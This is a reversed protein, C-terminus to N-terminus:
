AKFVKKVQKWYLHIHILTTIAMLIAFEAHWFSITLNWSTQIGSNIMIVMVLGTVGTVMFSMNLANSWIKYFIRRRLRGELYFLYTILYIIITTITLPILYYNIRPVSKSAQIDSSSNNGNKGSERGPKKESSTSSNDSSSVSSSQSHDCIDDQNTDVYRPCQGPFPDDILGYPCDDWAYIAIPTLLVVFLLM